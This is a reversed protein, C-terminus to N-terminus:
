LPLALLRNRVKRRQEELLAEWMEAGVGVEVTEEEDNDYGVEYSLINTCSPDINKLLYVLKAFIADSKELVSSAFPSPPYLSLLFLGWLKQFMLGHAGNGAVQFKQLYLSILEAEGFGAGSEHQVPLLSQLTSPAALSIRALSTLYLVIVRDPECKEDEFYSSSCAEVFTKLVGCSLLLQGGEIPFLRLLTEVVLFIYAVGRPRVQGVLNGIVTQITISHENLFNTRGLVIYYQTIRM